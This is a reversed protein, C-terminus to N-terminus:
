TALSRAYIYLSIGIISFIIPLIYNRKKGVVVTHCQKDHWTQEKENKSMNWYGAGFFLLSLPQFVARKIATSTNLKDAAETYVKLGFLLKGPTASFISLFISSYLIWILYDGFISMKSIVDSIGVLAELFVIIIAVIAVGIFDVFYAGFRIWFGAYFSKSKKIHEGCFRCFKSEESIHKTCNPCNM